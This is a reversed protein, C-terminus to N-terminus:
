GRATLGAGETGQASSATRELTPGPRRAFGGLDSVAKGGAVATDIEDATAPALREHGAHPLKGLEGVTITSTVTSAVTGWMQGITGWMQRYNASTPTRVVDEWEIEGEAVGDSDSVVGDVDAANGGGTQPAAAPERQLVGGSKWEGSQRAPNEAAGRQNLIM